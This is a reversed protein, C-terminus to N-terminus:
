HSIHHRLSRDLAIGDRCIERCVPFIVAFKQQKRASTALKRRLDTRSNLTKNPIERSLPVPFKQPGFLTNKELLSNSEPPVVGSICVVPTMQAVDRSVSDPITAHVCLM